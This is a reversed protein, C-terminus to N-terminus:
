RTRAQAGAAILLLAGGAFAFWAGFSTIYRLPEGDITADGVARLTYITTGIALLGALGTLLALTRWPRLRHALVAVFALAAAGRMLWVTVTGWELPFDPDDFNVTVDPLEGFGVTSTAAFVLLVAGAIGTWFVPGQRRVWAGARTSPEVDFSTHATM